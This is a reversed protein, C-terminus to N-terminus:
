GCALKWDVQSNDIATSFGAVTIVHCSLVASEPRDGIFLVLVVMLPFQVIAIVFQQCWRKKIVPTLLVIFFFIRWTYTIPRIDCRSLSESTDYIFSGYVQWGNYGFRYTVDHQACQVIFWWFLYKAHAPNPKWIMGARRDYKLGSRQNALPQTHQTKFEHHTETSANHLCFYLRVVPTFINGRLERYDM